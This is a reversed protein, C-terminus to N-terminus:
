RLMPWLAPEVSAAALMGGMCAGEVGPSTVDQGALLLGPLPTRVHLAPSTLREASMEIGYMAGQPSRVYRQQTVPTSLEHFRLMPRLAPFHRLFQALLRQQVQEKLAQYEPPRRAAPMALWPAFAAADVVSVVEATPAGHSAPDKLSPFSVFLAPAETQAPDRWVAGIDQSAYIWHNASSAGAAAIDGELGVYLSVYSLGPALGRVTQQWGAADEDDLCAVTNAVGMASIVLRSAERWRKGRQEFEVGCVHGETTLIRKADCGVRLEGGGAAIAPALTQAFRAPGGVPYYAGANYSGTVLAHEVFPAQPPPAGHNAWRAGLVARLAPDDIRALEGALTRGAWEAAEAGRWQRLGWALLAPAGHLAFLTFANRRAAECAEFWRAIAAHQRAFRALLALRYASEPHEIGFSFGPWQVIDYPNACPAFQLAGGTLWALLRGFQAKPGPQPAVGGIYHVGTAFSWQQRRFTQTLGGAVAHQELVLVRRGRRALAAAASLGGIGSGIVIADWM